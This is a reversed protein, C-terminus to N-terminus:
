IISEVKGGDVLITQGTIYAAGQSCLFACTAAMEEPTGFRRMPINSAKARLMEDYDEGNYAAYRRFSDYFNETGISGTGVTNVTIGDPALDDALTKQLGLAAMRYANPVFHPVHRHVQRVAMSGITVIRGWRQARMHPVLLQAMGFFRMVLSNNGEMLEAEGVEDFKGNITAYPIYVGIDPPGFAATAERVAAEMGEATLCDAAVGSAEGGAERIQAVVADVNAQNRSVPVVKAGERALAFSCARGIGLTGGTVFAVKGKIGLDM